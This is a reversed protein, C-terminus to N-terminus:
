NEVLRVRSQIQGSSRGSAMVMHWFSVPHRLIRSRNTVHNKPVCSSGNIITKKKESGKTKVKKGKYDETSGSNGRYVVVM